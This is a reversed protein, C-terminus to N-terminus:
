GKRVNSSYKWAYISCSKFAHEKSGCTAIAVNTETINCWPNVFTRFNRRFSSCNSFFRDENDEVFRLSDLAFDLFNAVSEVTTSKIHNVQIAWRFEQILLFVIMSSFFYELVLPTVIRYNLFLYQSMSQM